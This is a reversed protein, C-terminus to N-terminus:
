PKLASVGASAFGIASSVGSFMAAQGAAQGTKEAFRADMRAKQADWRMETNINSEFASRYQESSGSMMLNSAGVLATIGGVQQALDLKRRRQNELSTARVIAAQRKGAEEAAKKGSIGGAISTIGGVVAIGVGVGVWSVEVIGGWM